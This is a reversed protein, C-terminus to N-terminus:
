AFLVSEGGVAVFFSQGSTVRENTVDNFSRFVFL